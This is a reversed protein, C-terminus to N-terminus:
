GDAKTVLPKPNGGPQHSVITQEAISGPGYHLLSANVPPSHHPSLFNSNHHSHFHPSLSSVMTEIRQKEEDYVLRATVTAERLVELLHQQSATTTLDSLRPLKYGRSVVLNKLNVPLANLFLVVLHFFWDQADDPLLSIYNQYEWYM